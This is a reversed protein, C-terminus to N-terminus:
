SYDFFVELENVMNGEWGKANTFAEYLIGNKRLGRGRLRVCFMSLFLSIPSLELPKLSQEFTVCVPHPFLLLFELPFLELPRGVNRAALRRLPLAKCM